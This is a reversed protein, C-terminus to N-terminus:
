RLSELLRAADDRRYGGFDGRAFPELGAKAEENRGLRVLAIARNYRAELTMRGNAGAAAIYRDWSALAAEADRRVFHADHAERYLADLDPSPPTLPAVPQRKAVLATARRDNTSLSPAALLKPAVGEPASLAPSAVIPADQEAAAPVRVEGGLSEMSPTVQDFSTARVWRPLLGSATAWATLGILSAAAVLAVIQLRARFNRAAALSRALRASGLGARSSAKEPTYRASLSRTARELLDDSM